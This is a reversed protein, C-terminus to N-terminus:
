SVWTKRNSFIMSQQLSYKGTPGLAFFIFLVLEMRFFCPTGAGKLMGPPGFPLFFFVARRRFPRM